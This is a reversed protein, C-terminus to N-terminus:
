LERSFRQERRGRAKSQGARRRQSRLMLAMPLGVAMIQLIGPEPVNIIQEIEPEYNSLQVMYSNNGGVQENIGALTWESSSGFVFDGGGSDGGILVADNTGTSSTAGYITDFDISDYSNYTTPIGTYTVTNLGWSEGHGGGLGIIAVPDSFEAPASSPIILSPLTPGQTVRFLTLDATGNSDAIGVASGAVM